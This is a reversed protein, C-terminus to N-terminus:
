LYWEDDHYTFIKGTRHNVLVFWDAPYDHTINRAKVMAAQDDDANISTIKNNIFRSQKYLVYEKDCKSKYKRYYKRIRSM